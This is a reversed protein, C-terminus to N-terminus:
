SGGKRAASVLGTVDAWTTFFLLFLTAAVCALSPLFVWWGAAAHPIAGWGLGIAALAFLAALVRRMSVPGPRGDPAPAERFMTFM